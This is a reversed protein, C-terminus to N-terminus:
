GRKHKLNETRAELAKVAATLRGVMGGMDIMHGDSSEPFAEQWDQAMPGVRHEPLGYEARAADKYRYSDVPMERIMMLTHEGDAPKRDTKLNEDSMMMMAAMAMSGIASSNAQSNSANQADASQYAGMANTTPTSLAATNIATPATYSPQSAAVNPNSASYQGTGMASLENYPLMQLSSDVGVQRTQEAGADLQAQRAADALSQNTTAQYRSMENNYIESGVPIGRDQLSQSLETGQASIQPQLRGVLQQYSTDAISSTDKASVNEGPLRGIISSSAGYKQNLLDQSNLDTALSAPYVTDLYANGAGYQNRKYDNSAASTGFTDDIYGQLQPSYSTNQALPVGNEDRQYVTSGFPNYQDVANISATNQLNELNAATQADIAVKPDTPESACM